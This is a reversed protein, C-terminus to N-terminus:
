WEMTHTHTHTHIHTHTNTHTHTHTRTAYRAHTHTHSLSSPESWAAVILNDGHCFNATLLSITNKMFYRM